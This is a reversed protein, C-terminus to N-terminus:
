TTRWPRRPRCRRARTSAVSTTMCSRGSARAQRALHEGERLRECSSPGRAAHDPRDHPSRKAPWTPRRPARRRHGAVSARREALVDQADEAGAATSPTSHQGTSHLRAGPAHARRGPPWSGSPSRVGSPRARDVCASARSAAAADIRRDHEHRIQRPELRRRSRAPTTARDNPRPPAGSRWSCAGVRQRQPEGPARRGAEAVGVAEGAVDRRRRRRALRPPTGNTWGPAPHSRGASRASSRPGEPVGVLEGETGAAVARRAADRRFRCRFGGAGTSVDTTLRLGQILSGIRTCKFYTVRRRDM